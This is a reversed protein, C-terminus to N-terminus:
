GVRDLISTIPGTGDNATITLVDGVCSFTGTGSMAPTDVTTGGPSLPVPTLSGGTEIWMKVVAESAGEEFDMTMEDVSWMGPDVSSIEFVLNGDPTTLRWTWEVRSAVATGDASFDVFYDGSLYEFDGAFGGSMTAIQDFFEQDRLRWLDVIDCAASSGQEPGPDTGTTTTTDGPSGSSGGTGSGAGVNLWDCSFGGLETEEVLGVATMAAIVADVDDETLLGGELERATAITSCAWSGLGSRPALSLLTAYWLQEAKARGIGTVEAGSTPHVNVGTNAVLYGAMNAIGSNDHVGGDDEETVVFEAASDIAPSSLVRSTPPLAWDSTDVMTAFFDSYHENVAGSSGQYILGATQGTVAHTFEHAVVDLSEAYAKADGYRLTCSAGGATANKWNVGVHVYLRCKGGSGDHGDRGHTSFFYGWTTAMHGAVALAVQDPDGVITVKGDRAGLMLEADNITSKGEDDLANKADYVDWQEASIDLAARLLVEGTVADVVVLQRIPVEDDTVVVLHWAPVPPDATGTEVAPSFTVQRTVDPAAVLRPLAVLAAATADEASLLAAPVDADPALVGTVGTVLGDPDVRVTIDGAFVEFGGLMQRFRVVAGAATESSGILQLRDGPDAVRYAEAFADFYAIAAAEPDTVGSEFAPAVFAVIGGNEVWLDPTAADSQGLAELLQEPPAPTTPSSTAAQAATSASPEASSCAASLLALAAILTFTRKM